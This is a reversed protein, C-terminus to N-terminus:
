ENKAGGTKKIQEVMKKITKREDDSINEKENKPYAYVNDIL